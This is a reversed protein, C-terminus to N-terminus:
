ARANAFRAAMHRVSQWADDAYGPDPNVLLDEWKKRLTQLSTEDHSVVGAVFELVSNAVQQAEKDTRMKWRDKDSDYVSLLHRWPGQHLRWEVTSLGRIAARADSQEPNQDLMRRVIGALMDQGIPRFLLHNTIMKGEREFDAGVNSRFETPTSSLVPLEALIANWIVVLEKFLRDLLEDERRSLKIWDKMKGLENQRESSWLLECNM